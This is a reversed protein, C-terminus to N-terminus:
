RNLNAAAPARIGAEIAAKQEQVIQLLKAYYKEKSHKDRLQKEYLTIKELLVKAAEVTRKQQFRKFEDGMSVKETLGGKLGTADRSKKWQKKKLPHKRLPPKKPPHKKSPPLKKKPPLKQQAVAM